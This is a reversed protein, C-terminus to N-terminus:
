LSVMVETLHTLIYELISVPFWEWGIQNGYKMGCLLSLLCSLLSEIIHHNTCTKHLTAENKELKPVILDRNFQTNLFLEQFCSLHLFREGHRKPMREM